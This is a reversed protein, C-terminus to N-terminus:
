GTSGDVMVDWRIGFRDRVQGYHDGWPAPEFPMAIEGGGDAVKAIFTHADETSDFALLFSYVESALQPLDEGMNDGGTLTIGPAELTAHAVSGPPPTFPFGEMSPMADYTMLDLRGGFLDRYYPFAESANGPFSIYPSSQMTM